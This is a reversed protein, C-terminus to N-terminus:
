QNVTDHAIAPVFGVEVCEPDFLAAPRETLSYTRKDEPGQDSQCGQALASSVWCFVRWGPISTQTSPTRSYAREKNLIMLINWPVSANRNQRLRPSSDM